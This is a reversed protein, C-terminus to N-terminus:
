PPLVPEFGTREVLRSDLSSGVLYGKKNGESVRAVSSILSVMSNVRPTRVRKNEKDYRIGEPFLLYQLRYKDYLEEIYM